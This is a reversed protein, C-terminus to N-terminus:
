HSNYGVKREELGFFRRSLGMEEVLFPKGLQGSMSEYADLKRAVYNVYEDFTPKRWGLSKAEEMQRCCKRSLILVCYQLFYFFFPGYARGLMLCVLLHMDYSLM